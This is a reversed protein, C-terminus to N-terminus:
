QQGRARIEAAIADCMLRESETPSGGDPPVLCGSYAVKACQEREDARVAQEILAAFRQVADIGVISDSMTGDADSGGEFGPDAERAWAIIQERTITM